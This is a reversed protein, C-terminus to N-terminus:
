TPAIRVEQPKIFCFPMHAPAIRQHWHYPLSESLVPDPLRNDLVWTVIERGTPATRRRAEQGERGTAADNDGRDPTGGEAGSAGSRAEQDERGTAAAGSRPEQGGDFTDVTLVAHYDADRQEDTLWCTTFRPAFLPWGWQVLLTWKRVVFDKCDGIAGVEDITGVNDLAWALDRHVRHQAAFLEKRRQATLEVPTQGAVWDAWYAPTNRVWPGDRLLRPAAKAAVPLSSGVRVM